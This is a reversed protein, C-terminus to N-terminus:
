AGLDGFIMQGYNGDDGMMWDPRWHGSINVRGLVKFICIYLCICVGISMKYSNNKTRFLLFLVLFSLPKAVTNVYKTIIAPLTTIMIFERRAVKSEFQKEKM